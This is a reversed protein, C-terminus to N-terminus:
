MTRLIFSGINETSDFLKAALNFSNSLYVPEEYDFLM